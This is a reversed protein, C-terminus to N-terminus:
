RAGSDAGRTAVRRPATERLLASVLIGGLLGALAVDFVHEIGRSQAVGGAIIPAIGGGFIEGLGSVMGIASSILLPSVSETAIPGTFLGLLGLCFFSVVFLLAFLPVPEAGLQTFFHLAIAAGIFALVAALRRGIFDSLGPIVLEGIFGGFGLASMIFGMRTPPLKLYDVLYSPVMAGLVFICSMACLMALMALSLNRSRLVESWKTKTQADSAAPGGRARRALVHAPERLVRWLLYAVIFGPVAVVVFVQRWSGTLTMLQTAIIPALGFGFLAFGSLQMGQNLGRRKPHSAEATAAVSAPCYAGEAAGMVARMLLLALVSGAAGTFGSLLSFLLLAPILIRRRGIRDSVAGMVISFVGWCIALIGVLNGLDQYDLHLDQMMAPFLPTLIWRDLGVLGFGLALLWVVRWEYATDWKGAGPTAVPDLM